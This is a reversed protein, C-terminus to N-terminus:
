KLFREESFNKSWVVISGLIMSFRDLSRCICGNWSVMGMWVRAVGLGVPLFRTKGHKKGMHKGPKEWLKTFEMSRWWAVLLALGRLLTPMTPVVPQPLRPACRSTHFVPSFLPPFFPVSSHLNFIISNKNGWGLDM